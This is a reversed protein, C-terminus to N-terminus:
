FLLGTARDYGIVLQRGGSADPQTYVVRQFDLELYESGGSLSYSTVQVDELTTVTCVEGEEPLLCTAIEVSALRGASAGLEM